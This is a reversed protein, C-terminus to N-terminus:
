QKMNADSIAEIAARDREYERFFGEPSSVGDKITTLEVIWDGLTLHTRSTLKATIPNVSPGGDVGGGPVVIAMYCAPLPSAMARLTIAEGSGLRKFADAVTGTSDKENSDSWKFVDGRLMGCVLANAWFAGAGRSHDYSDDKQTPSASVYSHMLRRDMGARLKDLQDCGLIFRSKRKFDETSKRMAREVDDSMPKLAKRAELAKDTEAWRDEIFQRDAPQSDDLPCLSVPLRLYYETDGAKAFVARGPAPRPLPDDRPRPSAQQKLQDRKRAVYDDLEAASFTLPRGHADIYGLRDGFQVQSLGGARPRIWPFVPPAVFQGAKDILGSFLEKADQVGFGPEATVKVVAHGDRFAYAQLFRPQIAVNGEKDVYGYLQSGSITVPLLGDSLPTLIPPQYPEPLASFQGISKVQLLAVAKGATDVLAYGQGRKTAVAYGESFEHVMDYDFPIVLAGTRDVFGSEGNPGKFVRGLGTSFPRAHAFQFPVVVAGNRDVFGAKGGRRAPALGDSFAMMSDYELPVVVQGDLDIAGSKRKNTRDAVSVVARGDSFFGVDAYTPPVILEGERNIVGWREYPNPRHPEVMVVARGSRFPKVLQFQAPIVLKGTRDIFGYRKFLTSERNHV